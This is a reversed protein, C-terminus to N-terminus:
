SRKGVINKGSRLDDVNCSRSDGFRRRQKQETGSENTDDACNAAADDAVGLGRVRLFFAGAAQCPSEKNAYLTGVPQRRQGPFRRRGRHDGAASADPKSHLGACTVLTRIRVLLEKLIGDSTQLTPTLRVLISEAHDRAYRSAGHHRHDM